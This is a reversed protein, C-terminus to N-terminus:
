KSPINEKVMDPMYTSDKQKKKIISDIWKIRNRVWRADKKNFLGMLGKSNQNLWKLDSKAKELVPLLEEVSMRWTKKLFAMDDYGGFETSLVQSVYSEELICENILQKLQSKKM